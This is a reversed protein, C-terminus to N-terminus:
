GASKIAALTYCGHAAAANGAIIAAVTIVAVLLGLLLGAIGAFRAIERQM